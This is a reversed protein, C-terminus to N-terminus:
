LYNKIAYRKLHLQRDSASGIQRNDKQDNDKGVGIGSMAWGRQVMGWEKRIPRDRGLCEWVLFIFPM